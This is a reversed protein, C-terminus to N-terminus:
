SAKKGKKTKKPREPEPDEWPPLEPSAAIFSHFRINCDSCMFEGIAAVDERGDEGNVLRVFEVKEHNCKM